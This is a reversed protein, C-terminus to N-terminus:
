MSNSKLVLGYTAMAIMVLNEFVTVYSLPLNFTAGLCACQFKSESQLRKIVGITTIGLVFITVSNALPLGIQSIFMLGLILEVFPYLLGYGLFRQAIPDYSSFSESFAKLDLFKFFSLGIFFGAMIHSMFIHLDFHGRYIQYSLSALSIYAFILILPKYTKLKSEKQDLKSSDISKSNENSTARVTYKPLHKLSEQVEILDIEHHAEISAARDALNVKVTQVHPISKLAETVKQVCSECTMGEVIFKKTNM